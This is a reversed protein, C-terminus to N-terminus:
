RSNSGYWKVGSVMCRHIDDLPIRKIAEWELPQVTKPLTELIQKIAKGSKITGPILKIRIGQVASYPAVMPVAFEVVSGKNKLETDGNNKFLFTLGLELRPLSLYNKKGRIIFSGKAVYEGPQPTKSVQSPLVWWCKDPSGSNWADTHCIVFAGAEELSRPPVIKGDTKIIGSGSGAVDSHLYIDHDEMYKKVIEENQTANKGVIVLLLDSTFFWHYKEFWYEKKEILSSLDITIKKSVCTTEKAVREIAEETRLQKFELRKREQHLRGYNAHASQSPDICVHYNNGIDIVVTKAAKDESIIPFPLQDLGSKYSIIFEELKDIQDDLLDIEQEKNEKNTLIVDLQKEIREVKSSAATDTEIYTKTSEYVPPKETRTYYERVALNFSPFNIVQDTVLHQYRTPVFSDCNDENDVLIMPETGPTQHQQKISDILITLDPILDDKQLKGELKAVALGHDILVPSFVVLPSSIFVRRWPIPKTMEQQYGVLFKHLQEATIEYKIPDITAEARPYPHNIKVKNSEDYVHQHLLMLINDTHDTLIINGSAYLELILHFGGEGDSGFVFDIVRDGNVMEVRLLKRDKLHKRLKACFGSPTPRIAAFEELTHLRKASEMLLIIKGRGTDTKTTLRLVIGRSGYDYCNHLYSGEIGATKLEDIITLLDHSTFLQKRGM